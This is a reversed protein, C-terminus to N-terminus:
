FPFGVITASRTHIELMGQLVPASPLTTRLQASPVRAVLMTLTLAHTEANNTLAPGTARAIV